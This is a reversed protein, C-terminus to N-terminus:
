SDWPFLDDDEVKVKVEDKVGPTRVEVSGNRLQSTNETGSRGSPERASGRSPGPANMTYPEISFSPLDDKDVRMQVQDRSTKARKSPREAPITDSEMQRGRSATSLAQKSSQGPAQIEDDRRDAPTSPKSATAAKNLPKDKKSMEIAGLRHKETKVDNVKKNNRKLRLEATPNLAIRNIWEDGGIFASHVLLKSM